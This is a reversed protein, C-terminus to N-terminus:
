NGVAIYLTQKGATGNLTFTLPVTDSAAVNPVVINFQYLGVFNPALGSYSLVAPSGGFSVQFSDALTNSQQVIQGAPINPIVPGFGVGYITITEGPTARQSALGPIAGPPLAYTVGDEFLAVINQKGNVVFSAPALLGPETAAVNISYATSAGEATTAVVQQAGSLVSQPVQANVQSPSIYDIFANLGGVTVTTGSLSTPANAGNFDSGAWSRM